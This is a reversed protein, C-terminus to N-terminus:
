VKQQKALISLCLELDFRMCRQSLRTVPLIGARVYKLLTKTHVGVIAALEKTSVFKKM